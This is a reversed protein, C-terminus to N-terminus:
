EEENINIVQRLQDVTTIRNALQWKWDNWEQDSVGKWLPIEKRDRM